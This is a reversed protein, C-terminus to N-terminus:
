RSIISNEMSHANDRVDCSAYVNQKWDAELGGRRIEMQIGGDCKRSGSSYVSDETVSLSNHVRNM